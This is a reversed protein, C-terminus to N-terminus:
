DGHVVVVRKEIVLEAPVQAGNERDIKRRRWPGFRQTEVSAAFYESVTRLDPEPAM